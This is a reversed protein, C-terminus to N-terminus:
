IEMLLGLNSSGCLLLGLYFGVTKAKDSGVELLCSKRQLLSTEDKRKKTSICHLFASLSM